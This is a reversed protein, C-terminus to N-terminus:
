DNSKGVIKGTDVPTKDGEVRAKKFLEAVNHDEKAKKLKVTLADGRNYADTLEKEPIHLDLYNRSYGRWGELAPSREEIVMELEEGEFKRRQTQSTRSALKRLEKAREKKRKSHIEGEYESAPTEERPTYRFVHTNIFGVRSVMEKTKQFDAEDEGPFGVMLDTGFTPKSVEKQILNISDLYDRLDYNRNMSDLVRDSGSQLPVHFHSCTKESNVFRKVLDGTIGSPNISSLRIRSIYEVGSLKGLLDALKTGEGYEAVNVGTLVIEEFGNSGLERAEEVVEDPSKSRTPGRLYRVKCFSCNNSCGDQIKLFARTHNRDRSISRTDLDWNIEKRGSVEGKVGRKAWKLVRPFEYKYSNPFVLDVGEIDEIEDINLPVYCGTVLVLGGKRVAKRIHKRSKRDAGTTVSCTNIVSIDAEEGFPVVRYGNKSVISEKMVETDYQNAKCGLTHFAIRTSM